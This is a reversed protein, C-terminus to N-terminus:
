SRRSFYKLSLFYQTYNLIELTRSKKNSLTCETFIIKICNDTKFFVHLTFLIVMVFFILFVLITQTAWKHLDTHRKFNNFLFKKKCSHTATHDSVFPDTVYKLFGFAISEHRVNLGSPCYKSIASCLSILSTSLTIEQEEHNTRLTYLLKCKRIPHHRYVSYANYFNFKWLCTTMKNMSGYLEIEM